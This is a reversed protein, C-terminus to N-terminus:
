QFVERAEAELSAVTEAPLDELVDKGASELARELTDAWRYRRQAGAEVAKERSKMARADDRTFRLLAKMRGDAGVYMTRGLKVYTEYDQRFGRGGVVVQYRGSRPEVPEYRLRRLTENLRRVAGDFALEAVEDRTLRGVDFVQRMAEEPTCGSRTLEVAEALVMDFGAAKEEIM